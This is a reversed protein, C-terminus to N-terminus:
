ASPTSADGLALARELLARGVGATRRTASSDIVWPGNRPPDGPLTGLLIAGAM